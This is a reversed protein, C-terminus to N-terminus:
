SANAQQEKLDGASETPVDYLERAQGEDGMEDRKDAIVQEALDGVDDLPVKEETM